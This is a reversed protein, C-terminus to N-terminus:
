MMMVGTALGKKDRFWAGITALITNYSLGIGFGAFLGYYLYLLIISNGNLTSTLFFGAFVLIAAIILPIKPGKRKIIMGAALCGLCFCSITITYSTALQANTWGFESTFPTKLISWAYLIGTFLLCITAIVLFIIRTKSYTNKM